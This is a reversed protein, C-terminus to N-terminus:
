ILCHSKHEDNAYQYTNYDICFASLADYGSTDGM